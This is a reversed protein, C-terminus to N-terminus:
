PIAIMTLRVCTARGGGLHVSFGAAAGQTAITTHTACTVTVVMSVSSFCVTVQSVTLMRPVRKTGAENTEAVSLFKLWTADTVTAITMLTACIVTVDMSANTFCVTVQNVIAMRSALKMGALNTGALPLFNGSTVDTVIAITTLTACHAL